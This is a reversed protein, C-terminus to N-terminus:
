KLHIAPRHAKLRAANKKVGQDLADKFASLLTVAADSQSIGSFVAQALYQSYATVSEDIILKVFANKSIPELAKQLAQVDSTKNLILVGLAASSDQFYQITNADTNEAFVVVPGLYNRIGDAAAQVDFVNTGNVVKCGTQTVPILALSALFGAAFLSALIRNIKKM